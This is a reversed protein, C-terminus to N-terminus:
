TSRFWVCVCLQVLKPAFAALTRPTIVKHSAGVAHPALQLLCELLMILEGKLREQSSMKHVVAAKAAQEQLATLVAIAKTLKRRACWHTGLFPFPICAPHLLPIVIRYDVCSTTRPVLHVLCCAGCHALAPPHGLV